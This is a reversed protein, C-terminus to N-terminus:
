KINAFNSLIKLGVKGSKEPHFQTGFINDKQVVGSFVSSGYSTSAATNEGVDGRFSHVYYVYDGDKVGSLLPSDKIINLKNWGIHPIKYDEGLSDKEFMTISGDIYGLGKHHGYEFSEDFLLQMGLCIGLLPKGDEVHAAVPQELGSNRFKTIADGFAGVGPLLLRQAQAIKNVNSTIICDVGIHEFSCRLSYLNGVGYDVITVM